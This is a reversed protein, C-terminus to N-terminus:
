KSLFIYTYVVSSVLFKSFIFTAAKIWALKARSLNYKVGFEKLRM